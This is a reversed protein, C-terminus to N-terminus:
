NIEKYALLFSSIKIKELKKQMDLANNRDAYTGAVVRLLNKGDKDKYAILFSSIGHVKLKEQMDTANKREGYTGAVVRFLLREKKVPEDKKKLIEDMKAMTIPGALGDQVLGNDKQFAKVAKITGPGYLGDVGGDPAYGLETLKRQIEKTQELGKEMERKVDERFKDMNLGFRNWIHEPDGHNSAVGLRYGEAHSIVVGKKLPDLKYLKCLYAFLEVSTQYTSLVHDKTITPNLDIWNSGSIYKITNPETMEVSIHTDNASYKAHWARSNWPLCQLVTGSAELVAHVIVQAEEKNWISQFVSAKPQPTGVSHIMIGKPTIKKNSTYARSKTCYQEILKM